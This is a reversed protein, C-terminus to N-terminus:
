ASHKLPPVPRNQYENRKAFNALRSKATNVLRRFKHRFRPGGYALREIDDVSYGQKLLDKVLSQNMRIMAINNWTRSVCAITVICTVFTGITALIFVVGLVDSDIQRLLEFIDSSQALM